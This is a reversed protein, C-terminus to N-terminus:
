PGRNSNKNYESDGPKYDPHHFTFTFNRLGWLQGPGSM